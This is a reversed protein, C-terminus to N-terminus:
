GNSGDAGPAVSYVHGDGAPDFSVSPEGGQFQDPGPLSGPLAQPATFAPSQAGAPACAVLALVTTASVVLRRILRMGSRPAQPVPGRVHDRLSVRMLAASPGGEASM